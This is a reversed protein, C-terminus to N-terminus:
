ATPARAGSDEKDTGDDTEGAEFQKLHEYFTAIGLLNTDVVEGLCKAFGRVEHATEIALNGGLWSDTVGAIFDARRDRLYQLFMKSVPEHRWRAFDVATIGQVVPEPPPAEPQEGADGAYDADSM